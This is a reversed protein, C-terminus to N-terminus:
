RTIAGLEGFTAANGDVTRVSKLRVYRLQQPTFRILQEV